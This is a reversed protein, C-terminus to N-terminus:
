TMRMALITNRLKSNTEPTAFYLPAANSLCWNARDAEDGRFVASAGCDCEVVTEDTFFWYMIPRGVISKGCICHTRKQGILNM